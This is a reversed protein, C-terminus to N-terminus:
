RDGIQITPSVARASWRKFVGWFIAIVVVWYTLQLATLYTPPWLSGASFAFVMHIAVAVLQAGAAVVLWHKHTRIWLATLLAMLLADTLATAYQPASWNRSYVLLSVAWATFAGLTAGREALGGRRASLGCAILLLVIWLISSILAILAAGM